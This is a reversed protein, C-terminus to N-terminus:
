LPLKAPKEERPEAPRILLPDANKEGSAAANSAQEPEREFRASMFGDMVMAATLLAVVLFASQRPRLSVRDEAAELTFLPLGLWSLIRWGGLIVIISVAFFHGSYFVQGQLFLAPLFVSLVISIVWRSFTDLRAMGGCARCQMAGDIAAFLIDHRTFIRRKCHPCATM